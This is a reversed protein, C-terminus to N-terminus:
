QSCSSVVRPLLVVLSVCFGYVLAWVTSSLAGLGLLTGRSEARKWQAEKIQRGANWQEEQIPEHHEYTFAEYINHQGEYCVRATTAYVLATPGITKELICVYTLTCVSLSSHSAGKGRGKIVPSPCLNCEVLKKKKEWCKYTRAHRHMYLGTVLWWCYLLTRSM